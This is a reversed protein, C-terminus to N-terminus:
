DLGDYLRGFDFQMYSDNFFTNLLATHINYYHSEIEGELLLLVRVSM